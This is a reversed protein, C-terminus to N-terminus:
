EVLFWIVVQRQLSDDELSM